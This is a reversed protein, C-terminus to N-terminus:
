LSSLKLYFFTVLLKQKSAENAGRRDPHFGQSPRSFPSLFTSMGGQLDSLGQLINDLKTAKVEGLFLGMAWVYGIVGQGEGYLEILWDNWQGV